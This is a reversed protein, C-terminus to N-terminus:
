YGYNQKLLPNTQRASFPIPMLYNHQAVNTARGAVLLREVLVGHRVYDFWGHGEFCLEWCREDLIMTRLMDPDDNCDAVTYAKSGARTRVRNIGYLTNEVTGNNYSPGYLENLAESYMLLVDAYRLVIYNDGYDKGDVAKYQKDSGEHIDSLFKRVFPYPLIASPMTVLADNEDLYSVLFTAAKRDDDPFNEYFLKEVAYTKWEVAALKSGKPVFRPTKTTGVGGSYGGAGDLYQISFIDEVLNENEDEYIDAFNEFLDFRGSQIVELCLDATNEYYKSDGKVLEGTLPDERYGAMTLYVKALLSKAAWRTARGVDAGEYADPLNECAFELDTIIQEYIKDSPVQEVLMEDVNTTTKTILPINGFFRVLHFYNLARIFSAEGLVRNKVVPDMDIAPVREMVLNTQANVKWAANWFTKVNDDTNNLNNYNDLPNNWETLMMDSPGDAMLMYTNDYYTEGALLSYAANVAMIADEETKFSNEVSIQSYSKEELFQEHCGACVGIVFISLIIKKM